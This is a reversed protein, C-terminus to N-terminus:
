RGEMGEVAVQLLHPAIYRRHTREILAMYLRGFANRCAVRTALSYEVRGDDLWRVGVCSRFALHRDDAGLLVQASRGDPAVQSAHVPYRCAFLPSGEPMAQGASPPQLSSVPCALPSRRLGLPRVIVNRVAMMRTVGPHRNVLFSDLLGALLSAADPAAGAPAAAVLTFCDEHHLRRGGLAQRLLSDAPLDHLERVRSPRLESVYGTGQLPALAHGVRGALARYHGCAAALWGGPREGLSLVTTPVQQARVPASALLDQVADPLLETLSPIDGQDQLVKSRLAASLEGGLENTHTSLAFFAPHGAGQVSPVFQHWNEGSFRVTFLCDPPVDVHRLARVFAAPDREIEAPTASSFRLQAGASGSVATFVRHGAHRHFPHGGQGVGFSYLATADGKAFDSGGLKASPEDLADVFRGHQGQRAMMGRCLGSGVGRGLRALLTVEIPLAGPRTPLAVFPFTATERTLRLAPRSLGLTATSSNM